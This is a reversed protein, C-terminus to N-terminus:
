CFHDVTEGLLVVTEMVNWDLDTIVHWSDDMSNKLCHTNFAAIVGDNVELSSM